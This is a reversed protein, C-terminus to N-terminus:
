LEDHMACILLVITQRLPTFASMEDKHDVPLGSGWYVTCFGDNSLSKYDEITPTLLELSASYEFPLELCLGFLLRGEKTMTGKKMWEKYLDILKM